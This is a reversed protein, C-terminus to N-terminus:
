SHIAVAVRQGHASHCGSREGKPWAAVHGDKVEVMICGLVCVCVCFAVGKTVVPGKVVRVLCVIGVGEPFSHKEKM